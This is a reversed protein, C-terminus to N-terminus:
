FGIKQHNYDNNCEAILRIGSEILFPASGSGLATIGSGLATIGSGVRKCVKYWGMYRAVVRYIIADLIQM